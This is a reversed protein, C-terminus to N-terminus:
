QAPISAFKHLHSNFFHLTVKVLDLSGWTTNFRARILRTKLWISRIKEPHHSHAFVHVELGNKTAAEIWLRWHEEFPLGERLMFLVAM